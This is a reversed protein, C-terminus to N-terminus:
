QPRSVAKGALALRAAEGFLFRGRMM